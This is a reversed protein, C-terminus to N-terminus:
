TPDRAAKHDRALLPALVTGAVFALLGPAVYFWVLDSRINAITENPGPVLTPPPGFFVVCLGWVILAACLGWVMRLRRVARPRGNLPLVMVALVLGAIAGFVAGFAAGYMGLVLAAFLADHDATVAGAIATEVGGALAGVAAGALVGVGLHSGVEASHSNDLSSM